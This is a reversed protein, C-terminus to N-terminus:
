LMLMSSYEMSLVLLLQTLNLALKFFVLGIGAIFATIVIGVLNQSWKEICQICQSSGLSFSFGSRCIPDTYVEYAANNNVFMINTRSEASIFFPIYVLVTGASNNIFESLSVTIMVGDLYLLSISLMDTAGDFSTSSGTVFNDIFECHIINITNITRADLIKSGIDNVFKSHDISTFTESDGLAILVKNNSVFKSYRISTNSYKSYRISTNSYKASLIYGPGINNTFTSCDIILSTSTVYVTALYVRNDVFTTHSILVNGNGGFIAIGSNQVFKSDYVKVNSGHGNATYILGSTINCEASYCDNAHAFCESVSNNVFTTNVITITSGFEDYLVGGNLGVNNGEFWSDTISINSRKLLIGTSKAIISVITAATCNESDPQEQQSTDLISLFVVSDLNATSEDITLVAGNVIAQGYAHGCGLFVSNEIQFQDVSVVYNKYCGVFELGTVTVISVNRFEFRANHDCTIVAKSSSFPLVIM